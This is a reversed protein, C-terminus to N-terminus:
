GAGQEERFWKRYSGICQGGTVSAEKSNRSFMLCVGAESYKRRRNRPIKKRQKIGHSKRENWEHRKDCPVQDSFGKRYVLVETM